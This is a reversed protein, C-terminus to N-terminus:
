VTYTTTGPISYGGGADLAVVRVSLTRGKLASLFAFDAHTSTASVSMTYTATKWGAGGGARGGGGSYYYMYSISVQYGTIPSAIDSPSAWNVTLTNTSTNTTVGVNNVPGAFGLTVSLTLDTFGAYNTGRLVVSATHAANTQALTPTWSVAGTTPNVTLGAPGSVLSWAVTAGSSSDGLQVGFPKNAIANAGSATTYSTTIVPKNATVFIYVVVSGTGAANTAGFIIGPAGGNPDKDPPTWTIVGTQSNITLGNYYAPASLISYSTIAAPNGTALLQFTGTHRAVITGQNFQTNLRVSPISWTQVVLPTSVASEHGSTDVSTVKFNYNTGQALGTAVGSTGVVNNVLLSYVGTAAPAGYIRYSAIPGSNTSANWSLTVSTTTESVLALGTPAPAQVAITFIQDAQGVSNTARIDITQPGAQALTPTFAFLGTNADITAGTPPSVLSFTPAPVGTASAVFTFPNGVLDKAGTPATSTFVPTPLNLQQTQYVAASATGFGHGYSEGGIVEIRGQSDLVAAEGDLAAPMDAELSWTGTNLSYSQVTPLSTVNTGVGGMVYIKGYPGLVAAGGYEAVPLSAATSWTDSAINYEYVTNVTNYGDEGGIVFIHGAGDYVAQAGARAQPLPAVFLWENTAPNYREVSSLIGAPDNIGGNFPSFTQSGGIAYIYTGDSAYALGQRLTNMPTLQRGNAANTPDYSLAADTPALDAHSYGGFVLIKSSNPLLAVGPSDRPTDIPAASTWSNAGLALQLVTTSGIGYLSGNGFLQISHDNALIASVGVAPFPM